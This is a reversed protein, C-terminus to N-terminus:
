AICTNHFLWLKKNVMFNLQFILLCIGYNIGKMSGEDLSVQIIQFFTQVQQTFENMLEYQDYYNEQAEDSPFLVHNENISDWDQVQQSLPEVVTKAVFNGPIIANNSNERYLAVMVPVNELEEIDRIRSLLSNTVEKGKSLMEDYSIDTSYSNGEISFSYESKLAIGIAIGGLEVRNDKTRVLYNHELVHSFIRPNEEHYKKKKSNKNPPNLSDIWDFITGEDLYQGEQFLYDDPSFRIKRM